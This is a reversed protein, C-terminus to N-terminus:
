FKATLTKGDASVTWVHGAPDTAGTAVVAEQAPTSSTLTIVGSGKAGSASQLNVTVDETSTTVTTATGSVTITVTSGPTVPNPTASLKVNEFTTM